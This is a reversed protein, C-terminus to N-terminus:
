AADSEPQAPTQTEVPAKVEEKKPKRRRRTGTDLVANVLDHRGPKEILIEIETQDILAEIRRLLKLRKGEHVLVQLEAKSDAEEAATLEAAATEVARTSAALAPVGLSDARIVIRDSAMTAKAPGMSKIDDAKVRGFLHNYPDNNANRDSAHFADGSLDSVSHDFEADKVQVVVSTETEADRDDDREDRATRLEQKMEEWSAAISKLDLAKLGAIVGPVYALLKELSSSRDLALGM